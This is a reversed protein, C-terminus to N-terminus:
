AARAAPVHDPNEVTGRAGYTARVPSRYTDNNSQLRLPVRSVGPGPGFPAPRRAAALLESPEVDLAGCIGFLDDVSLPTAGSLRRSVYMPGVGLRAALQAQTVRGRAMLARLEEAVRESVDTTAESM